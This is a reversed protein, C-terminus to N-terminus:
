KEIQDFIKIATENPSLNTTEITINPSIKPTDFVGQSNLERFFEVSNLKGFKTRSSDALRKELEVVDCKLEVFVVKGGSQELLNQVKAPFDDPVTKEPAFTFILGSFNSKIVENFTELWIKERLNVFSESGFDFLSTVLDVTLHNHFLKYNTLKSLERAVTLKGVGPMGYLFILNM